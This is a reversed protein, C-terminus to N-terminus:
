PRTMRAAGIGLLLMVFVVLITWTWLATRRNRTIAYALAAGIATGGLIPLSVGIAMAFQDLLGRSLAEQNGEIAAAMAWGWVVCFGCM